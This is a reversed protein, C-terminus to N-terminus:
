SSATNRVPRSTASRAGERVVSGRGPVGRAGSSVERVIGLARRPVGGRRGRAEGLAFYAAAGLVPRAVSGRRAVRVEAGRRGGGIHGLLIRSREQPMPLPIERQGGALHGVVCRRRERVQAAPDSTSEADSRIPRLVGTAAYPIM